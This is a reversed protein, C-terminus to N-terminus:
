ECVHQRLVPSISNYPIDNVTYIFPNTQSNKEKHRNQYVSDTPPGGRVTKEGYESPIM